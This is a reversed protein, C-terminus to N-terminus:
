TRSPLPSIPGGARLSREAEVASISLGYKTAIFTAFLPIRDDPYWKAQERYAEIEWELKSKFWWRPSFFQRVHVKEHELLGRDGIYKPRILIIPGVTYGGFIEPIFRDTYFVM